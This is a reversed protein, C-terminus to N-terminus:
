GLKWRRYNVYAREFEKRKKIAVNVKAGNSMRIFNRDVKGLSVHYMNVIYSKHTRFFILDPLEKMLQLLSKYCRWIRENTVINSYNNHAEIYIIDSMVIDIDMGDERVIMKKHLFKLKGIDQFLKELQWDKLPKMFLRFANVEYGDLYYESYGTLLVLKTKEFLYSHKAALELGSMGPLKIDLFLLDLHPLQEVIEEASGYETIELGDTVYNGSELQKRLMCRLEKADDCIGIKM